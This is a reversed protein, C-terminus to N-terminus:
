VVLIFLVKVLKPYEEFRTVTSSPLDPMSCFVGSRNLVLLPLVGMCFSLDMSIVLYSPDRLLLYNVLSAM